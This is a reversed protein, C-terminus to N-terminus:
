GSDGIVDRLTTFGYRQPARTHKVDVGQLKGNVLYKKNLKEQAWTIIKDMNPTAVGVIEAIGRIVVLGYPIDETLYRHTLDPVWKGDENQLIPHTLGRYATNTTIATYLNSTDDIDGGYCKKYWDLIHIRQSLDTQPRLNSVVNTITLVEDSIRSMLTAGDQSLGHYSLPKEDLPKGDWHAWKDYLISTHLYANVSMLSVTLLDGKTTLLPKNGLLRQMVKYPDKQPATSGIKLAGLMANKTGLVDCSKGFENLRTTWPLSEYNILTIQNSLKGLIVRYQFEFGAQGPLGVLIMGPEMFPKIANLYKEHAFAALVFAIVDCGPIVKGPDNTVLIPKTKLESYKKGQEYLSVTFDEHELLDAWRQAKHQSLTLLRVETNPQSSAIGALAHAGNGSGCIVLKVKSDDSYSDM